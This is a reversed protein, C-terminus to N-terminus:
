PTKEPFLQDFRHYTINNIVSILVQSTKEEAIPKIKALIEKENESVINRIAQHLPILNKENDDFEYTFKKDLIDFNTSIKSAYIETKGNKTVNKLEVDLKGEVDDAFIHVLGKNAFTVLLRIDIDYLTELKLHKLLFDVNLRYKDVNVKFSQVIFDCYGFIKTDQLFLKLNNTDFIVIKDVIIPETPPVNLEPMGTCVMAKMNNINDLICQDYNPDKYGCVHVYSPLDDAAYATVFLFTFVAIFM